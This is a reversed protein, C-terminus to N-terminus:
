RVFCKDLSDFVSSISLLESLIDADNLDSTRNFVNRIIFSLIESLRILFKYFYNLIRKSGKAM